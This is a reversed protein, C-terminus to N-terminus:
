QKFRIEHQPALLSSLYQRNRFLSSKLVTSIFLRTERFCSHLQLINQRQLRNFLLIRDSFLDRATWKLLSVKCSKVTNWCYKNIFFHFPIGTRKCSVTELIVCSFAKVCLFRSDAECCPFWKMHPFHLGVAVPHITCTLLVCVASHFIQPTSHSSNFFRLKCEREYNRCNFMRSFM